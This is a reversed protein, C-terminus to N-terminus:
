RISNYFQMREKREELERYQELVEELLEPWNDAHGTSLGMAIVAKVGAELEEDKM